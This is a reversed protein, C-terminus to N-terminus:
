NTRAAAAAASSDPPHAVDTPGTAVAEPLAVRLVDELARAPVFTLDKRVEEPLEGLDQM